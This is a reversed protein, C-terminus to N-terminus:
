IDQEHTFIEYAIVKCMKGWRKENDSGGDLWEDGFRSLCDAIMINRKNMTPFAFTGSVM